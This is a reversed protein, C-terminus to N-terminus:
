RKKSHIVVSFVKGPVVCCRFRYRYRGSYLIGEDMGTMVGSDPCTYRFYDATERQVGAFWHCM